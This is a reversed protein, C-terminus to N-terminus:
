LYDAALDTLADYNFEKGLDKFDEDAELQNLSLPEKQQESLYKYLVIFRKEMETFCAGCITKEKWKHGDGQCLEVPCKDKYADIKREPEETESVKKYFANWYVDNLMINEKENESFRM